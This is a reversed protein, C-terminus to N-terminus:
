EDPLLYRWIVALTLGDSTRLVPWQSSPNASPLAGIIAAAPAGTLDATRVGMENAPPVPVAAPWTAGTGDDAREEAVLRVRDTTYPGGDRAVRQALQELRDRAATLGKPYGRVIGLAYATVSRVRGDAELVRLVTSSADAVQEGRAPEVTPGLGALDRRLAAVLDRVESPTLALRHQADAIASGDSYVAVRAVEIAHWAPPLFGGVQASSAVLVPAGTPLVVPRADARQCAAALPVLVGVVGLVILGRRM